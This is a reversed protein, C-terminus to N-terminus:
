NEVTPKKRLHWIPILAAIIVALILGVTGISTSLLSRAQQLWSRTRHLDSSALHSQDIFLTPSTDAINQIFEGNGAINDMSNIFLSPDSISIVEGSGMKHRSIVPLPGTPEGENRAGDNNSDLFSFPSSVAVANEANINSLSTAHNFVLNDTNATLPDSKLHIVRPFYKNKYNVLPDLLMQGTFRVEIGLYELIQNGHGYDDAVILRGGRSVFRYLQQLEILSYERYPITILTVENPSSPFNDLSDLTEIHYDAEIDRIGNWFPNNVRFDENSPFFWVSLILAIILVSTIILLFRRLEV